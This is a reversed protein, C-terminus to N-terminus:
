GFLLEIAGNLGVVTTVSSPLEGQQAPLLEGSPSRVCVGQVGTPIDKFSIAKDDLFVISDVVLPIFDRTMSPPVIFSGDTHKWGALLRGKEKIQTVLHPVEMLGTAEIKALQWAESGYTLIGHPLNNDDLLQLLEAAHPELAAKDRQAESIFAQQVQQWTIDSSADALLRKVHDITNYVGGESETAAREEYLQDVKVTTDRELVTDLVKYLHQTDALTRDLDLVYYTSV